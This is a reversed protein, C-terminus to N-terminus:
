DIDNDPSCIHRKRQETMKEAKNSDDSTTPAADVATTADQNATENATQDNSISTASPDPEVQAQAQIEAM